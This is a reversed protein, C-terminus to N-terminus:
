RMLVKADSEVVVDAHQNRLEGSLEILHTDPHRGPQVRLVTWRAALVDGPYVPKRYRNNQELLAISDQAFRAGIASALIAASVAGHFIRGELGAAHAAEESVHVPHRGRTLRVALELDDATVECSGGFTEGAEIL